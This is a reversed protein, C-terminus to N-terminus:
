LQFRRRSEAAPLAPSPPSGWGWAPTCGLGPGLPAALGTCGGRPSPARGARSPGSPWRPVSSPLSCAASRNAKSDSRSKDHAKDSMLSREGDGGGPGRRRGGPTLPSSAPFGAPFPSPPPSSPDCPSAAPAPPHFCSRASCLHQLTAKPAPASGRLHSIETRLVGSACNRDQGQVSLRIDADCGSLLDCRARSPSPARM